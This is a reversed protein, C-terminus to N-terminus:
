KRSNMLLFFTFRLYLCFSFTHLITTVMLSNVTEHNKVKSCYIVISYIEHLWLTINLIFIYGIVALIYDNVAFCYGYVALIYDNVALIYNNVALIYDNVALIYGYVALIYGYVALIYGNVVLFTIFKVWWTIM